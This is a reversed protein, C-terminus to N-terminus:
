PGALIECISLNYRDGTPATDDITVTTGSAPTPNNRRQVWYTDGAPSLNQHVMTQGSGLTRSIANDYDNGVGFV